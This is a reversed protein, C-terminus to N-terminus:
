EPHAAKQGKRVAVTSFFVKAERRPKTNLYEKTPLFFMRSHSGLLLIFHHTKSVKYTKGTSQYNPQAHFKRHFIIKLANNCQRRAELLTASFDSITGIHSKNIRM